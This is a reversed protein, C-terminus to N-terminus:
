AAIPRAPDAVLSVPYTPVDRGASVGGLPGQLPDYVTRTANMFAEYYKRRVRAPAGRPVWQGKGNVGVWVPENGGSKEEVAIMVEVFEDAYQEPTLGTKPDPTKDQKAGAAQIEKQKAIKPDEPVEVKDDLSVGAAKLDAEMISRRANPAVDLNYVITCVRKMEDDSLSRILKKTM